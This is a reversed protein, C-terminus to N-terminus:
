MNRRWPLSNLETHRWRSAFHPQPFHSSTLALERCAVPSSLPCASHSGNHVHVSLWRSIWFINLVSGWLILFTRVQGVWVMTVTIDFSLAIIIIWEPSTLTTLRYTTMPSRSRSIHIFTQGLKTGHLAKGHKTLSGTMNTRNVLVKLRQCYTLSDLNASWDVPLHLETQKHTNTHTVNTFLGTNTITVNAYWWLVM